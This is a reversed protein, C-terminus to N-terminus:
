LTEPSDPASPPPARRAPAPRDASRGRGSAPAKQRVPLADGAAVRRDLDIVLPVHDSLGAATWDAFRGISFSLIHAAAGRPLFVYDIHYTPGTETRDRWYLTPHREGGQAVGFVHHYASVMGLRGFA